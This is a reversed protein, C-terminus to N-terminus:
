DQLLAQQTAAVADVIPDDAHAFDIIKTTMFLGFVGIFCASIAFNVKQTLPNSSHM